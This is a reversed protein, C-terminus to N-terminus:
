RMVASSVATSAAQGAAQLRKRVRAAEVISGATGAAWSVQHADILRRAWVGFRWRAVAGRWPRKLSQGLETRRDRELMPQLGQALLIWRHTVLQRKVEQLQQTLQTKQLLIRSRFANAM